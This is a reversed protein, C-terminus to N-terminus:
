CRFLKTLPGKEQVLLKM